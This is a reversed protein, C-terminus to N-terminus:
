SLKDDVPLLDNVLEEYAVPKSTHATVVTMFNNFQIEDAVQALFGIDRQLFSDVYSRYYAKWDVNKDIYLQPM